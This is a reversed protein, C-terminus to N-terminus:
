SLTTDVSGAATWVRCQSRSSSSDGCARRRSARSPRGPRRASSLGPGLPRLTTPNFRTQGERDALVAMGSRDVSWVVMDPRTPACRVVEARLVRCTRAAQGASQSNDRKAFPAQPPTRARSVLLLLLLLDEGVRRKWLLSDQSDGRRFLPSPPIQEPRGVLFLLLLDEGVRRKWLLSGQSNGGKSFPPKPSKSQSQGGSAVVVAFGGRGRESFTSHLGRPPPPRPRPACQHEAAAQPM